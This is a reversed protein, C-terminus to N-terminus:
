PSDAISSSDEIRRLIFYVTTQWFICLLFPLTYWPCIVHEWFDIGSHGLGIVPPLITFNFKTQLCARLYDLRHIADISCFIIFGFSMNGIIALAGIISAANKYKIFRDIFFGILALLAGNITLLWTMRDNTLDNESKILEKLATNYAKLEEEDDGKIRENLPRDEIEGNVNCYDGNNLSKKGANRRCKVSQECNCIKSLIDNDKKDNCETYSGPFNWNYDIEYDDIKDIILAYFFWSYGIAVIINVSFIIWYKKLWNLVRKM